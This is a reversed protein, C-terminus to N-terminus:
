QSYKKILDAASPKASPQRATGGGQNQVFHESFGNLGKIAGILSEPTHHTDLLAKIKESGQVSRMGHVGMSALAYSEIQGALQSFEPPPNGIFERLSNVRGLAPGIKAAFDPNQLESVIDDGTQLVATASAGRTRETASPAPGVVAGGQDKITSATGTKRDVLQPGAATQVVIPQPAQAPPHYGQVGLPTISNDDAIRVLGKATDHVTGPKSPKDFVGAPPNKGTAQEYELARREPSDAPMSDLLRGMIRKTTAAQQQGPTGLNMSPNATAADFPKGSETEGATPPTYLQGGLGGAKMIGAAQPAVNQDMPLEPALKSANAVNSAQTRDALAAAHDAQTMKFQEGARQAEQERLAQQREAIQMQQQERQQNLQDIIRQRLGQQANELGYANQLGLGM